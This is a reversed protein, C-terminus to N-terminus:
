NEENDLDRMTKMRSRQIETMEMMVKQIDAISFGADIILDFRKDLTLVLGDKDKRQSERLHEFQNLPMSLKNSYDWCLSIPLGDGGPNHGLTIPYCRVEVSSFSVQKTLNDHKQNMNLSTTENQNMDLSTTENEIKDLSATEKISEDNGM